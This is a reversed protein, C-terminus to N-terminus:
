IIQTIIKEVVTKAKVVIESDKNQHALFGFTSGLLMGLLIISFRGRNRSKQRKSKGAKTEKKVIDILHQPVPEELVADFLRHLRQNIFDYDKVFNTLDPHTELFDIVDARRRKNLKEDVYAHLHAHSLPRLDKHPNQLM